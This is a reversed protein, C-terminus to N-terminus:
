LAVSFSTEKNLWSLYALKVWCSSRWSLDAKLQCKTIKNYSDQMSQKLIQMLGFFKDNWLVSVDQMWIYMYAKKDQANSFPVYIEITLSSYAKCITMSLFM